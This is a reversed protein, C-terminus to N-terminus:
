AELDRWERSPQPVQLQQPGSGKYGFGTLAEARCGLVTPRAAGIGQEAMSGLGERGTRGTAKLKATGEAQAVGGEKRLRAPEKWCELRLCSTVEESFLGKPQLGRQLHVRNSLRLMATEAM